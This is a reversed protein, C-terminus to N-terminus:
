GEGRERERERQASLSVSLYASLYVPLYVPLDPLQNAVVPLTDTVVPWWQFRLVPVRQLLARITECQTKGPYNGHILTNLLKNRRGRCNNGPLNVPVVEADVFHQSTPIGYKDKIANLEAKLFANERTLEVVRSELVM